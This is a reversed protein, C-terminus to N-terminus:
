LFDNDENQSHEKNETAAKRKGDDMQREVNDGKEFTNLTPVPSSSEANTQSTFPTMPTKWATTPGSWIPPNMTYSVPAMGPPFMLQFHPPPTGNSFPFPAFSGIPWVQSPFNPYGGNKGRLEHSGHAHLCFDGKTCTGNREFFSCLTSKYLPANARLEDQSHAYGCLEMESCSGQQVVNPCWKYKQSRNVRDSEGHAFM